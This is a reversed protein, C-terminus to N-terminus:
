LVTDQAKEDASRSVELVIVCGWIGGQIGDVRNELIGGLAVKRGEAPGEVM